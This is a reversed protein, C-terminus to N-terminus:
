SYALRIALASHRPRRERGRGGGAAAAGAAIRGTLRNHAPAAGAAAAHWGGIPFRVFVQNSRNFMHELPLLSSQRQPGPRGPRGRQVRATPATCRWCNPLRTGVGYGQGIRASARHVARSHCMLPFSNVALLGGGLRSGSHAGRQDHMPGEKRRSTSVTLELRNSDYVASRGAVRRGGGVCEHLGACWTPGARWCKTSFKEPHSLRCGPWCGGWFVRRWGRDAGGGGADRVAFRRDLLLKHAAYACANM